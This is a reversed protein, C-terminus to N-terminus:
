IKEFRSFLTSGDPGDVSLIFYDEGVEAIRYQLPNYTADLFDIFYGNADEGITYHKTLTADPQGPRKVTNQEIIVEGNETFTNADDKLYSPVYHFLDTEPTGNPDNFNIPIDSYFARLQFEYDAFLEKLKEENTLVPPVVPPVVVPPETPPIYGGEYSRDKDCSIFLLTSAFILTYLPRM